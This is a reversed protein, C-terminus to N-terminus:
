LARLSRELGRLVVLVLFIIFTSLVALQYLGIGCALGVGAAAWLTAATTLGEVHFQEKIITGAGLFGIGTVVGQVIRSFADSQGAIGEGILGFVCAGVGVMAITRVGAPKHHVERELGIAVALGLSLFLRGSLDLFHQLRPGIAQGSPGGAVVLLVVGFIVIIAASMYAWARTGM